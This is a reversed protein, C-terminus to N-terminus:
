RYDLCDGKFFAYSTFIGVLLQFEIRSHLFYISILMITSVALQEAKSLSFRTILRYAIFLPFFCYVLVGFLGYKLLNSGLFTHVSYYYGTDLQDQSYSKLDIVLEGPLPVCNFNYTASLGNGFIFNFINSDHSCLINSIEVSRVIASGSMKDGGTISLESLKWFFFDFLSTNFFYIIVLVAPMLLLFKLLVKRFFAGSLISNFTLIILMLLMEGRSVSFLSVIQILSKGKLILNQYNVFFLMIPIALLPKTQIDFSFNKAVAFDYFIYIVARISIISIILYLISFIYDISKSKKLLLLYKGIIVGSFFVIFFKINSILLSQNLHKENFIYNQLTVTILVIFTFVVITVFYVNVRFTKILCIFAAMLILSLLLTGLGVKVTSLTNYIATGTSIDDYSLLIDRPFEPVLFSTAILIFIGFSTKRVLSYLILLFLLLSFIKGASTAALIELYYFLISAILFMAGWYKNTGFFDKNTLLKM